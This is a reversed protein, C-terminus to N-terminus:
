RDPLVLYAIFKVYETLVVLASNEHTWWATPIFRPDPAPASHLRVATGRFVRDFIIATRRSHWSDTVLILTRWERAEALARVGRADTQTSDGQNTAEIREAPVGRRVLRQVSWDAYTAPATEGATPGGTTLVLPAIGAAFLDAARQERTGSRYGGGLVVIADARAPPDDPVILLTGILRMGVGFGVVGLFLTVVLALLLWHVFRRSVRIYRRSDFPVNLRQGGPSAVPAKSAADTALVDTPADRGM